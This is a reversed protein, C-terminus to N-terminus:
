WLVRLLLNIKKYDPSIHFAVEIKAPKNKDFLMGINTSTGFVVNIAGAIVSKGAGTEGTMVNFRSHLNLSANKVLIFNSIKLESIM